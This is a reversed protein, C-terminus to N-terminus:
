TPVLRPLVCLLAEVLVKGGGTVVARMGSLSFDELISM